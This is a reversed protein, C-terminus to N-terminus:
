IIFSRGGSSECTLVLIGGENFPGATNDRTELGNEDFVVPTQPSVQYLDDCCSFILQGSWICHEISIMEFVM